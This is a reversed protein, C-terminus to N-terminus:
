DMSQINSTRYTKSEEPYPLFIRDTGAHVMKWCGRAADFLNHVSQRGGRGMAGRKVKTAANGPSTRDDQDGNSKVTNAIIAASPDQKTYGQFHTRTKHHVPHIKHWAVTHNINIHSQIKRWKM